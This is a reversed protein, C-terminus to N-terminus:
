SQTLDTAVPRSLHLYEPYSASPVACLEPQDSAWVQHTSHCGDPVRDAMAHLCDGESGHYLQSVLCERDSVALPCINNDYSVVSM